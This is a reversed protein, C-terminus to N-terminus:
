YKKNFAIETFFAAHNFFKEKQFDKGNFEKYFVETNNENERIIAMFKRSNGAFDSRIDATILCDKLALKRLHYPSYSKIFDYLVKEEFDGFIAKM